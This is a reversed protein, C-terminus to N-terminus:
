KKGLFSELLSDLGTAGAMMFAALAFVVADRPPRTFLAENAAITLGGIKIVFTVLGGLKAIGTLEYREGSERPAPSRKSRPNSM